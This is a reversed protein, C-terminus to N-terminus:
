TQSALYSDIADQNPLVQPDVIYYLASSVEWQGDLFTTLSFRIGDQGGIVAVEEFTYNGEYLINVNEAMFNIHTSNLEFVPLEGGDGSLHETLAFNSLLLVFLLHM